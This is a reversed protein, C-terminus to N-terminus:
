RRGGVVRYGIVTSDAEAAEICRGVCAFVQSGTVVCGVPVSASCATRLYDLGCIVRALGDAEAATLGTIIKGPNM